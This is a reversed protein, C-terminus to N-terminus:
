WISDDELARPVDLTTCGIQVDTESDTTANAKMYPALREAGQQLLAVGGGPRAGVSLGAISFEESSGVERRMQELFEGSVIELMGLKLTAQLGTNATDGLCSPEIAYEIAPQMESILTDIASDYSTDASAIMLKRKVDAKTISIAM